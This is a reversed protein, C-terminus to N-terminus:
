LGAMDLPKEFFVAMGKDIVAGSAPNKFTCYYSKRRVPKHIGCLKEFSHLAQPGSVRIVAVGARGQASALAYITEIM